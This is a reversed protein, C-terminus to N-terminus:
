PTADRDPERGPQRAPQGFIPGFRFACLQPGQGVASPGEVKGADERFDQPFDCLGRPIQNIPMACRNTPEPRPVVQTMRITSHRAGGVAAVLMM